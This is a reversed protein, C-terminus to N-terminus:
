RVNKSWPELRRELEVRKSSIAAFQQDHTAFVIACGTEQVCGFVEAMLSRTGADLGKVPEDILLLQPRLSIAIALALVLKTGASLDRPHTELLKQTIPLLSEFTTKTTGPKSKSLKDSLQFEEELSQALFLDEVREPIFRVALKRKSAARLLRKLYTTKGVGNPGVLSVLDAQKLETGEFEILSESGVLAPKRIPIEPAADQSLFLEKATPIDVRRTEHEALVLIGGQERYTVLQRNLEACSQDDLSAYPEDLILLKPKNQLAMSIAHKVAEGESLLATEQSETVRWDLFSDRPQQAVYQSFSAAARADQRADFGFITVSQQLNPALPRAAISRLLTTKGSGTAGRVILAEQPALSVVQGDGLSILIESTVPQPSATALLAESVANSRAIATELLPVLAYRKPASRYGLATSIRQAAEAIAPLTSIGVGLARLFNSRSKLAAKGILDPGVFYSFVGFALIAVTFPIAGSLTRLLGDVGIPGFLTVHSFIGGLRVGPLDLLVEGASAATFTIAYALRFLVFGVALWIATLLRTSPKTM